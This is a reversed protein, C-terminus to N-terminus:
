VLIGHSKKYEWFMPPIEQGTEEQMMREKVRTTLERYMKTFVSNMSKHFGRGSKMTTFDTPFLPIITSRMTSRLDLYYRYLMDGTMPKDKERFSHRFFEIANSDFQSTDLDVIANNYAQLTAAERGPKTTPVLKSTTSGAHFVLTAKCTVWHEPM